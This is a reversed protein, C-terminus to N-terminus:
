RPPQVVFHARRNQKYCNEEHDTCFPKEEGFSITQISGQDVGLAVLFRKVSQARREGLALNYEESGREDAHGQVQVKKINGMILEANKRLLVKSEDSLSAQDFDFFIDLFGREERSLSVSEKRTEQQTEQSDTVDRQIREEKLNGSPINGASHESGVGAADSTPSVRKACGVQLLVWGFLFLFFTVKKM